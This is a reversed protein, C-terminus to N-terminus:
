SICSLSACTFVLWTVGIRDSFSCPSRLGHNHQSALSTYSDVNLSKSTKAWEQPIGPIMCSCLTKFPINHRNSSHLRPHHFCNHIDRLTDNMTTSTTQLSLQGRVQTYYQHTYDTRNVDLAVARIWRAPRWIFESACQVRRYYLAARFDQERPGVYMRHTSQTCM